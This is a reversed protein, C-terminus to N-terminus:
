NCCKCNNETLIDKSYDNTFLIKNTPNCTYCNTTCDISVSRLIDIFESNIKDERLSKNYLREDITEPERVKEDM